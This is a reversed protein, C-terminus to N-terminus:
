FPVVLGQVGNRTTANAPAVAGAVALDYQAWTQTNTLNAQPAGIVEKTGDSNYVTQPVIANAAQGAYYAQFNDGAVGNYNYVLLQDSQVLDVAQSVPSDEMVIDQPAGLSWVNAIAPHRFTVNNVIVKRAWTPTPSEGYHWLHEMYVNYYNDLISNQITQTGPGSDASPNAGYLTPANSGTQVSPLFGYLANEIDSNEVLFNKQVYDSSFLAVPGEGRSLVTADGLFVYGDFTLHDTNYNYYGDAYVNWVHFDKVVSEPPSVTNPYIDNAFLSWIQLGDAGGYAENGVFQRIPTSTMNVVTYQGAVSPDAGPGTPIHVALLDDPWFMYGIMSQAAINGVVDNEYGRFWFATGEFAVDTGYGRTDPRGGSGTIKVAFNDAVLNGTESGSALVIGGGAWNYLVNDQILGFSSDNVGIGWRYPMPNLPCFVSNDAFTYQYGDAQGGAPGILHDFYVANRGGQNTGVHTLNGNADYTTDDLADVRTRGLGSFQVNEIDVDAHGTFLTYGRTGAANASHVVVNRSLNGVDPLFVLNGNGDRAGLHDYQLPASLTITKGDASVAAVTVVEDEPVYSGSPNGPNIEWYLQRTDPLILHDGVQWGTVAQSLQLTTDGAHAEAALTVHTTSLAAGHMSVTGLAILGNGFQGPDIGTNLPINPFIIQAKVGVQEPAAASGVQLTGGQLVLLNQVTLTTNIDTRFTLMGGSRIEVTNLAATSVVDYTVTDGAPIAVIDGAGPIQGTSWTAPSSWAGSQVATVTPNAGFDPVPLGDLVM